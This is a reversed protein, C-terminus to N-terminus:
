QGGKIYLTSSKTANATIEEDWIIEEITQKMKIMADIRKTAMGEVVEEFDYLVTGNEDRPGWFGDEFQTLRSM